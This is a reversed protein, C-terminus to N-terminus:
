KVEIGNLRKWANADMNIEDDISKRSKADFAASHKTAIYRRDLSVGRVRDKGPTKAARDDFQAFGVTDCWEYILKGALPNLKFGFRDYDEGLPNKFPRIQYHALMLIGMKRKSRLEGLKALLKRWEDLAYSPGKNYGFDEMCTKNEAKCVHTQLIAELADLTDIVLTQRDHKDNTLADITEYFAALKPPVHLPSTDTGYNVRSVDLEGTGDDADVYVPNPALTGLTSKGIGGVGYICIRDPLEIAGDSFSLKSM